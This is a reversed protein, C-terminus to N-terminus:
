IRYTYENGYMGLAIRFLFWNFPLVRTQRSLFIISSYILILFEKSFISKKSDVYKILMMSSRFEKLIVTAKCTYSFVM